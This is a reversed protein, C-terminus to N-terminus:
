SIFFNLYHNVLLAFGILILPVYNFLQVLINSQDNVTLVKGPSVKFGDNFQCDGFNEIPCVYTKTKLFVDFGEVYILGALLALSIILPIIFLRGDIKYGEIERM